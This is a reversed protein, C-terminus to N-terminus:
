DEISDDKFESIVEGRMEIKNILRDPSNWNQSNKEARSNGNLEIERGLNWINRHIILRKFFYKESFWYLLQKLIQAGELMQIMEHNIEASNRKKQSQNVMHQTIKWGLCQLYWTMYISCRTMSRLLTSISKEKHAFLKAWRTPWSEKSYCSLKM